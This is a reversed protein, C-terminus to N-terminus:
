SKRRIGFLGVLASGFLWAAAPVPVEQASYTGFPVVAALDDASLGDLADAGSFTWNAINFVDGDAGTNDLRYAWGDVYDWATGTGDVNIDGFTDIVSGSEFLELADDGNVLASSSVYTPAFGFANTFEVDESAIYIFQGVSASGSLTLEEGDSGGGNNASGFGYISLDAIDATVYLEIAKPVGGTIPGDVVGTILLSANAHAAAFLAGVVLLKKMM